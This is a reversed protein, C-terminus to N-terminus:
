TISRAEVINCSETEADFVVVASGRLLAEKVQTVKVELAVDQEGYETGERLVFESILSRLTEEALKDHPIIM